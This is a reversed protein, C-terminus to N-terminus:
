KKKAKVPHPTAFEKEVEIWDALSDNSPCGRNLWHFYAAVELEDKSLPKVSGSLAKKELTKVM